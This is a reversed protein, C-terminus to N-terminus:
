FSLDTPEDIPADPGTFGELGSDVHGGAAPGAADSRKDLMILNDGVV